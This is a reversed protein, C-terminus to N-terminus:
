SRGLRGLRRLRGAFDKEGLLRITGSASCGHGFIQVGIGHRVGASPHVPFLGSKRCFRGRLWPGRLGRLRGNACSRTSPIHDLHSRDESIEPLSLRQSIFQGGLTVSRRDAKQGIRAIQNHRGGGGPAGGVRLLHLHIGPTQSIRLYHLHVPLLSGGGSFETASGARAPVEVIQRM